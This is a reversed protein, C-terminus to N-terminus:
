RNRYDNDSKVPVTGAIGAGMREEGLTRRSLEVDIYDLRDLYPLLVKKAEMEADTLHHPPAFAPPPASIGSSTAAAAEFKGSEVAILASDTM